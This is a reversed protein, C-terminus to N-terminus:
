PLRRLTIKGAANLGRRWSRNNWYVGELLDPSLVDLVAAGLFSDEDTAAVDKNTQRFIWTVRQRQDDIRPLLDFSWTKSSRLPTEPNPAVSITAQQWNQDIEARFKDIRPAPLNQGEALIDIRPASFDKASNRLPEITPWNSQTEMEWAGNLDPFIRNALYKGIRPFSWIKRWVPKWLILAFIAQVGLVIIRPAILGSNPNEPFAAHWAIPALLAGAIAMYAAAGLWFRLGLLKAV